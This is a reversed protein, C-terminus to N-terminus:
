PGFGLPNGLELNARATKAVKPTELRSFNGIEEGHSVPGFGSLPPLPIAMCPMSSIHARLGKGRDAAPLCPSM